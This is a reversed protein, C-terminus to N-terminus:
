SCRVVVGRETLKIPRANGLGTPLHQGVTSTGVGALWSPALKEVIRAYSQYVSHNGRTESRTLPAIYAPM